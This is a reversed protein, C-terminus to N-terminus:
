LANYGSIYLTVKGATLAATAITMQVVAEDALVMPNSASQEFVADDLLVAKAGNTNDLFADVDGGSVGMNLVAAGASLVQDEVMVVAETVLMKSKCVGMLYTDAIAGGDVSFDYTMKVFVRENSWGSGFDKKAEVNVNAM